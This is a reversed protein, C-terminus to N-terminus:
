DDNSGKHWYGEKGRNEGGGNRHCKMCNQYNYIGEERHESAIKAESHEHCGYCTYIKYNGPNTHCTRCSARHDGDLRFYRDHNFTAPKWKNTNHCDACSAQSLRHMSDKPQDAKHCKICSKDSIGPLQKHDFTAPKWRSTNHCQGCNGRTFRHVEDAPKKQAHCNSCNNLLEKSILEHRFSRIAKAAAIGKHDTHCEICTKEPLGKHFQVKGDNKTILKGSVSKFGIDSPKHCSLCQVSAAGKLPQHCSLCNNKLSQHGKMLPGPSLLFDPATLVLAALILVSVIFVILPKM